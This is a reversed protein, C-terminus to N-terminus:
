RQAPYLRERGSLATALGCVLLAHPLVAIGFVEAAMVSLALPARAAAAFVAVMAVGAGLDVPVGLNRALVNGLTAGIVFLPTVEGGLFGSGVTLATFALKWAFADAPLTPDHFARELLPLSLGLSADHGVLATLAVVAAGGIAMRWPAPFVKGLAHKLGHTLAIFAASTLAAAAAFVLWRALLGPTPDIWALLPYSSHRIGLSRTTLDGVVSAILAPLAAVWARREVRSFEFAFLTGALPTGFVSGFGGAVGALLLIRRLDKSLRLRHAGTDALSAGMQVATGERGASGGFLHTLLTGALIMPAMRAPIAPGGHRIREIVLNAGGVIAGGFRPYLWGIAAGVLPLAWVLWPNEARTHTVADLAALFVASASGCAIGLPVALASAAFVAKTGLRDPLPNADSM